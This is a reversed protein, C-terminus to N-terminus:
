QGKCCSPVSVVSFLFSGSQLGASSCLPPSECSKCATAFSAIEDLLPECSGCTIYLPPLGQLRRPKFFYPSYDEARGQFFVVLRTLPRAMRGSIVFFSHLFKLAFFGTKHKPTLSYGGMMFKANRSVTSDFIRPKSFWFIISMSLDWCFEFLVPWFCPPFCWM